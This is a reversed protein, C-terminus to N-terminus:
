SIGGRVTRRPLFFSVIIDWGNIAGGATGHRQPLVYQETGCVRPSGPLCDTWDEGATRRARWVREAAVRHSRAAKGLTGGERAPTVMMRSRSRVTLKPVRHHLAAVVQPIALRRTQRRESRAIGHSGAIAGRIPRM